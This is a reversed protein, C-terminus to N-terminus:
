ATSGLYAALVQEDTQVQAPTGTAITEGRDLVIVQDAVEMLLDMHHEILMVAVGEDRLEYLVRALEHMERGGVGAAPEDLLLVDAGPGYALAIALSRQLGYPLDDPRAHLHAGGIGFRALLDAARRRQRRRGAAERWPLLVSTSLSAGANLSLAAMANELVSLEGFFSNQQYTRRLGRGALRQTSLGTVREGHLWVQGEAPVAATIAAFCSSKGAGNPGIVGLIQGGGVECSFDRLARVAGYHEGLKQVRLAATQEEASEHASSQPPTAHMSTM